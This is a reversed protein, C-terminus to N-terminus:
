QELGHWSWHHSRKAIEEESMPERGLWSWDIPPTPPASDENDEEDDYM